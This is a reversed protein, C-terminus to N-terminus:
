HYQYGCNQCINVTIPQNSSSSSCLLIIGIIWGIFPLFLFLLIGIIINTNNSSTTTYVTNINTSGCHPCRMLHAQQFHLSKESEYLNIADTLNHARLNLVYEEIKYGVSWYTPPIICYHPDSMRTELAHLQQLSVDIDQDILELEHLKESAEEKCKEQIM